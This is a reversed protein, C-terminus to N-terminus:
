KHTKEWEGSDVIKFELPHEFLYEDLIEILRKKSVGKVINEKSHEVGIGLFLFSKEISEFEHHDTTTRVTTFFAGGSMGRLSPADSKNPKYKFQLNKTQIRGKVEDSSSTEVRIARFMLYNINKMYTGSDDVHVNSERLTNSSKTRSITKIKNRSSPFGIWYFGEIFYNKLEFPNVQHNLNFYNKGEYSRNFYDIVIIDDERFVKYYLSQSLVGVMEGSPSLWHLDKLNEKDSVAHAACILYFGANYEVCTGTSSYHYNNLEDKLYLPIIFRQAQREFDNSNYKFDKTM